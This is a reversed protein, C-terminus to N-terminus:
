KETKKKMEDLAQKAADVIEYAPIIVPTQVIEAGAAAEADPRRHTLVIGMLKGERNFAPIGPQGGGLYEVRPKTIKASIRGAMIAPEYGFSKGLRSLLVVSDLLQINKDSDALNVAALNAADKAELPKKPGIFALDQDEDKLVVKADIEDGSSLRVKIDTLDGKLTLKKTQGNVTGRITTVASTPDIAALSCIVLGSSDICTGIVETKKEQEDIKAQAEDFIAVKIVANIVVISNSYADLAKRGAAEMAQDDARLNLAFFAIACAVIINKWKM